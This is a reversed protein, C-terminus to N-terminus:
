GEAKAIAANTIKEIEAIMQFRDNSQTLQKKIKKFAALLEDHCNCARVIFAANALTEARSPTNGELLVSKSTTCIELKGDATQVDAKYQEDVKWPVPTHKMKAERNYEEIMKNRAYETNLYPIHGTM